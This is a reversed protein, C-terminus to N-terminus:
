KKLAARIRMRLSAKSAGELVVGDREGRWRGDPLATWKIIAHAAGNAASSAAKRATKASGAKITWAYARAVDSISASMVAYMQVLPDDSTLRDLTGVGPKAAGKRELACCILSRIEWTNIDAAEMLIEIAADASEPKISYGVRGQADRHEQYHRM